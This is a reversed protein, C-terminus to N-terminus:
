ETNETIFPHALIDNLSIRNEVDCLIKRILDQADGDLDDPLIYDMALVRRDTESERQSSGKDFPRHGVLLEHLLVGLSWVDFPKNHERGEVLIEPAGYNASGVLSQRNSSTSDLLVSCGFDALIIENNPGLLLNEPKIDRHLFNHSHFHQVANIVDLIIKVSKGSSFKGTAKMLQRLSGGLSYELILYTYEEDSFEGYIHLINPLNRLKFHCDVERRVQDSNSKKKSIAKIAVIYNSQVERALFVKGFSGQGLLMILQFDELQKGQMEINNCQDPALEGASFVVTKLKLVAEKWPDPCDTDAALWFLPQMARAWDAWM